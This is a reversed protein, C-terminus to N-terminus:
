KKYLTYVNYFNGIRVKNAQDAVGKLKLVYTDYLSTIYITKMKFVHIYTNRLTTFSPLLVADAISTTVYYGNIWVDVYVQVLNTSGNTAVDELYAYSDIVLFGASFTNSFSPTSGILGLTTPVNTNINTLTDWYNYTANDKLNGTGIIDGNVQIPNAGDFTINTAANGISFKGGNGDFVAGAGTMSTGSRVATGVTLVESAGLTGTKIKDATIELIKASPISNNVFYTNINSSNFQGVLNTDIAAGV